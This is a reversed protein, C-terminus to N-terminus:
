FLLVHPIFGLLAELTRLLVMIDTMTENDIQVVSLYM